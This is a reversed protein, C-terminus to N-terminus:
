RWPDPGAETAGGMIGCLIEETYEATQLYDKKQGARQAEPVTLAKRDVKGNATLPM